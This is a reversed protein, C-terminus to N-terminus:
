LISVDIKKDKWARQAKEITGKKVILDALPETLLWCKFWEETVKPWFDDKLSGEDRITCYLTIHENFFEKQGQTQWSNGM